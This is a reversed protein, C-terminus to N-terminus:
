ECFLLGMWFEFDSMHLRVTLSLFLTLLSYCSLRLFSFNIPADTRAGLSSWLEIELIILIFDLSKGRKIVHSDKPALAEWAGGFCHHDVDAFCTKNTGLDCLAPM